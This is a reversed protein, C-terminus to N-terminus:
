PVAKEVVADCFLTVNVPAAATSATAEVVVPMLGELASAYASAREPDHLLGPWAEDLLQTMAPSLLAPEISLDTSM